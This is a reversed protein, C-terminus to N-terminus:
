AARWAQTLRRWPDAFHEAALAAMTAQDFHASALFASGDPFTLVTWTAIHSLGEPFHGSRLEPPIAEAPEVRGGCAEWLYRGSGCWPGWYLFNILLM